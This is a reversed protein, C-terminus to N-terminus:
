VESDIVTNINDIIDQYMKQEAEIKDCLESFSSPESKNILFEYSFMNFSESEFELEKLDGELVFTKEPFNSFYVQLEDCTKLRFDTIFTVSEKTMKTISCQNHGFVNTSAFYVYLRNHGEFDKFIDDISSDVYSLINDVNKQEISRIKSVKLSVIEEVDSFKVLFERSLTKISNMHTILKITEPNSINYECLLHDYQEFDHTLLSEINDEVVLNACVETIKKIIQNDLGETLVITKKGKLESIQM